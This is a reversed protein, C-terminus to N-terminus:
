KRQALMMKGLTYGNPGALLKLRNFLPLPYRTRLWYGKIELVPEGLVEALATYSCDSGPLLKMATAVASMEVDLVQMGYVMVVAENDM